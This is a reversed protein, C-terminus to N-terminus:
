PSLFKAPDIRDFQFEMWKREPCHNVITPLLNANEAPVMLRFLPQESGFTWLAAGLGPGIPRVVVQMGKPDMISFWRMECASDTAAVIRILSVEPGELAEVAYGARLWVAHDYMRDCPSYRYLKGAFPYVPVWLEALPPREAPCKAALTGRLDLLQAAILAESEANLSPLQDAARDGAELILVAHYHGGATDRQLFTTDNLVFPVQGSCYAVWCCALVVGFARVYIWTRKM